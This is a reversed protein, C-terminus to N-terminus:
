GLGLRGEVKPEWWARNARYWELTEQLGEEFKYDPRWDYEVSAKMCNIAYRRDHGPRDTVFEVAEEFPVDFFRCAQKVVDINAVQCRGGFNVVSCVVHGTMEKTAAAILGRCHDRVHIWDRIQQGDGYVPVKDGRMLKAAVVPIFKEAHQWAGYNNSCRTIVSKLGHTRACAMVLLDSSAKSASYPSSPRLPDDEKSASGGPIIDGYVEDTSVHVFRSVGTARACDLLVQTGMVNTKIFETAGDISRDVHSEAAMHIVVGPREREFITRMIDADCIDDLYFHYKDSLEGLRVPDGAYTLKDVNVVEYFRTLLMRILHSGIFGCGGTVLIKM